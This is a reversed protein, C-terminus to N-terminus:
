TLLPQEQYSPPFKQLNRLPTLPFHASLCVHLYPPRRAEHEGFVPSHTPLAEGRGMAATHDDNTRGLISNEKLLPTSGSTNSSPSGSFFNSIRSGLSMAIGGSRAFAGSPPSPRQSPFSSPPITTCSNCNPARPPPHPILHLMRRFSLRFSRVKSLARSNNRTQCTLNRDGIDFTIATRSIKSKKKKKEGLSEKTEPFNCM